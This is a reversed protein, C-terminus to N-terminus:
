RKDYLWTIAPVDRFCLVPFRTSGIAAQFTPPMDSLRLPQEPLALLRYAGDGEVYDYAFIGHSAVALWDSYDGAHRLLLTAQSPGPSALLHELLASQQERTVLASAPAVGFGATSFHGVHEDRDVAFWDFEYGIMDPPLPQMPIM